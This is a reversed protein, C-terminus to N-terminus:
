QETDFITLAMRERAEDILTNQKQLFRRLAFKTDLIFDKLRHEFFFGFYQNRFRWRAVPHYLKFCLRLLFSNSFKYEVNKNAFYSSFSIAEMKRVLEPSSWSRYNRLWTDFEMHEWDELKEPGKFGEAVAQDYFPTGIIPLFMFILTYAHPNTDQLECAFRVTDMMEAETEGPFGVILTYKAKIDYKALKQNTVRMENLTEAKNVMRIVRENGSEIGIDVSFCGSDYLLDWERDTLQSLTDARIGLTGWQLDRKYKKLGELLKIFRPKSGPFYDDQFYIARVGHEHYLEDVKQLIREASFGRWRGENLVPDSCFKCRFPCGRSTSLTTSRRGGELAFVKYRTLDLLQYPLPPLSDLDRIVDAQGNKRIFSFTQGRNSMGGTKMELEGISSHLKGDSQRYVLGRLDDLTRGDRLREFLECFVLDGDGVIVYDILPHEATQEPVLTAHVGGWCVPVKYKAKVFRTVELAYKIQPGTIATIGVLVTEPGMAQDLEREFNKALRQDIIKTDYGKAYPVAAVALLSEPPRVSMEDWTGTYPQILVIQAM